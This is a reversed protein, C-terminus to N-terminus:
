LFIHKLCGLTLSLEKSILNWLLLNVPFLIKKGNDDKPYTLDTKVGLFGAEELMPAGTVGM